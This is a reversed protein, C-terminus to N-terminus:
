VKVEGSGSGTKVITHTEQGPSFVGSTKGHMLASLTRRTSQLNEKVLQSTPKSFVLDIEELTKNKIEPMFLLQCFWGVVAIGGYFGM